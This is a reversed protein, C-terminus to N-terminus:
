SYIAQVYIIHIVQNGSAAVQLGGLEPKARLFESRDAERIASSFEQYVEALPKILFKKTM